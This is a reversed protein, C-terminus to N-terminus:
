AVNWLEVEVIGKENIVIGNGCEVTQSNVRIDGDLGDISSRVISYLMVGPAYERKYSYEHELVSMERLKRNAYQSYTEGDIPTPSEDVYDVYYGRSETSIPSEPDDNVAITKSSGVLVIYRNPLGSMDGQHPIEPGLLRANTNDIILAPETPKKRIHVVGRGDIQIIFGGAKLVAWVADIVNSGIEHVINENLIFGGEVEVPANIAGRLLEAAYEAGNVGKPAYEGALIVQKSAPYLVSYGEASPKDSGYNYSGGSIDFLLTAVDVREVEGGQEAIMVIRYYDPEFTGSLDMGGSELLGGDATRTLSVSDVGKLEERDAWTKRNVRYVRWSASYSQGWNM